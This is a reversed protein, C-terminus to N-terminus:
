TACLAEEKSKCKDLQAQSSRCERQINPVQVEDHDPVDVVVESFPM